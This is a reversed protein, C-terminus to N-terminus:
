QEEEVKYTYSFSVETNNTREDSKKIRSSTEDNQIDKLRLVELDRDKLERKMGPVHGDGVVAVVSGFREDLERLNKAMFENREDILIRKIAPMEVSMMSSPQTDESQFKDIEKELRKKSIFLGVFGGIVLSIKEKLSMEDLLRTLFDQAPLDIFAVKSNMKKATDVATLMEEGVEVGYKEALRKQVKQLLKYILPVDGGGREGSKLAAYRTRDLEVAVVPPDRAMIEREIRDSIDFVHASGIITIM